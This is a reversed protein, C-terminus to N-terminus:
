NNETLVPSIRDANVWESWTVPQSRRYQKAYRYFAKLFDAREDYWRRELEDVPPTSLLDVGGILAQRRALDKLEVRRANRLIDTMLMFTTTRGAGARCHFHLWTNKPLEKYFALFRDVADDTPRLHDTVSLRFYDLHQSFVMQAETLANKVEVPLSVTEAIGGDSKKRTVQNVMVRGAQFAQWLRAKEDSEIEELNKGRNAWNNAAFWSVADGNLFGHSEERLDVVVFHAPLVKLMEGFGSESFQASGSINLGSLGERSPTYLSRERFPDKSTRFNKPLHARDKSNLILVPEPLEESAGVGLPLFFILTILSISGFLNKKKSM